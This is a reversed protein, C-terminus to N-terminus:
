KPLNDTDIEVIKMKNAEFAVNLIPIGEVVALPTGYHAHGHVAFTTNNKKMITELITTGMVQWLDEPEGELTKYTPAYHTLLIKIDDKLNKLLKNLKEIRDGYEDVMGVIGGSEWMTPSDLIGISGVIGVTKGKITVSVAQDRLFFIRGQFKEIIENENDRGAEHNGFVAVVPCNWNNKDLVDILHQYKKTQDSDMMYSIDGALLLLDPKKATKIAKELEEIGIRDLDSFASILM